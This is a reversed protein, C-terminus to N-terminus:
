TDYIVSCGVGVSFCRKKCTNNMKREKNPVKEDKLKLSQLKILLHEM